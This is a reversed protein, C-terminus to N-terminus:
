DVVEELTRIKRIKVPANPRVYLMGVVVVSDGVNLGQVVEVGGDVRNGTVVEVFKGKGDKVIVVKKAKADPIISSTPIVIQAMENKHSSIFVKAFSGPNINAGNLKARVLLNRSSTNVQPEIATIIARHKKGEIEVMVQKGIQALHAYTEPLTFDLKVVNLQQITTLLNQPTIYAGPSIMRLGLVGSYPARIITKEIQAQLIQIDAKLSNVQNLAADYDAQNIGNLTLLKKLRQETQQALDLQVKVKNLQAQLDADNIKALIAGQQVARGEPINLYVLRGSVEARIETMEGAVVTGNAEVTTSINQTAAVIVDVTTPTNAGSQTNTQEKKESKCAVLGAVCIM